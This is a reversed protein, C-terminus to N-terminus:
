LGAGRASSLAASRPEAGRRGRGGRSGAAGGREWQSLRLGEKKGLPRRRPAATRSRIPCNGTSHRSTSWHSSAARHIAPGPPSPLLRRDRRLPGNALESASLAVVGCARVCGALPRLPRRVPRVAGPDRHTCSSLPPKEASARGAGRERNRPPPPQEQGRARGRADGAAPLFSPRARCRRRRHLRAPQATPAGPRDRRAALSVDGRRGRGRRRRGARGPPPRPGEPPVSSRTGPRARASADASRAGRPPGGRAPRGALLQPPGAARRPSGERRARGDPRGARESTPSLFNAAPRPPVCSASSPTLNRSAVPHRQRAPTRAPPPPPPPPLRHAPRPRPSLRSPRRPVWLGPAAPRPWRVRRRGRRPPRPGRPEGRTCDPVPRLLKGSHPILSGAGGPPPAAAGNGPPAALLGPALTGSGALTPAVRPGAQGRGGAAVIFPGTTGPGPPLLCRRGPRGLM